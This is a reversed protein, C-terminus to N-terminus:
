ATAPYIWGAFVYYDKQKLLKELEKAIDMDPVTPFDSVDLKKPEIVSPVHNKHFFAYIAPVEGDMQIWTDYKESQSDLDPLFLPISDGSVVLTVTDEIIQVDVTGGDDDFLVASSWNVVGTGDLLKEKKVKDVKTASLSLLPKKDTPAAVIM